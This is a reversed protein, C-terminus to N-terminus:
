CFKRDNLDNLNWSLLVDWVKTAFPPPPTFETSKHVTSYWWPAWVGDEPRPGAKWRGLLNWV